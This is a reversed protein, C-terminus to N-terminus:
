IREDQSFYRNVITRAVNICGGRKLALALSILGRFQQAFRSLDHTPHISNNHNM